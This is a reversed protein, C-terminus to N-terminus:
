FWIKFELYNLRLDFHYKQSTFSQCLSHNGIAMSTLFIKHLMMRRIWPMHSRHGDSYISPVCVHLKFTKQLHRTLLNVGVSFISITSKLCVCNQDYSNHIFLSYVLPFTLLGKFRPRSICSKIYNNMRCPPVATRLHTPPAGPSIWVHSFTPESKDEGERVTESSVNVTLYHIMINTTILVLWWYLFILGFSTFKLLTSLYWFM